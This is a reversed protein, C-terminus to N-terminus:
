CVSASCIMDLTESSTFVASETFRGAFALWPAAHETPNIHAPNRGSRKMLWTKCVGRQLSPM